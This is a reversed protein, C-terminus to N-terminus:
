QIKEVIERVVEKTPAIWNNLNCMVVIFGTVAFVIMCAIMSGWIEGVVKRDELWKESWVMVAACVAILVFLGLGVMTYAFGSNATEQVVTQSINVASKMAPRVAETADGFRDAINNVVSNITDKM